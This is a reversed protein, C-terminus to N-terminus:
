PMMLGISALRQKEKKNRVCHKSQQEVARLM